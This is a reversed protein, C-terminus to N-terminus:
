NPATLSLGAGKLREMAEKLLRLRRQTGPLDRFAIVLPRRELIRLVEVDRAGSEAAMYRMVAPDTIAADIRGESLKKYLLEDDPTRDVNHPRRLAQAAVSSPYDYTKVLGVRHRFIESLKGSELGSKKRVMVAVSSWDVPVSATFGDDVEEPWAPFYGIYDGGRAAMRARAWPLYDVQLKIGFPKLAQRLRQMSSGGSDLQAGSYPPWNLSTIRWVEEAHIARPWVLVISFFSVLLATRM